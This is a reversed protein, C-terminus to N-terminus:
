QGSSGCKKRTYHTVGAADVLIAAKTADTHIWCKLQNNNPDFDYAMCNAMAVCQQQCAQATAANNGTAGRANKNAVQDFCDTLSCM